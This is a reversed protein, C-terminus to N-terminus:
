RLTYKELIEHCKRQYKEVCKKICCPFVSSMERLHIVRTVNKPYQQKSYDCCKKGCVWQRIPMM